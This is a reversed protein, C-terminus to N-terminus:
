TPVFARLLTMKRPAPVLDNATAAEVVLRVMSAVEPVTVNGDEASVTAPSKVLLLVVPPNLGLLPVIYKELVEGCVSEPNIVPVLVNAVVVNM